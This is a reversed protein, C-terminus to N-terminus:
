SSARCSRCTPLSCRGGHHPMVPLHRLWADEDLMALWPASLFRMKSALQGAQKCRYAFEHALARDFFVFRRAWRCAWRPAASVSCTSVTGRWTLDAPTVDLAAVANASAPATSTCSSGHQRATASIRAVQDVTYLTGLETPQSLTV